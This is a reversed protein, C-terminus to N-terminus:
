RVPFVLPLSETQRIGPSYRLEAGPAIRYEPVRRHFEEIGVRLEMRALHSGLCRHPGGGFALHRNQVRDFDVEDPHPFEEPDRDAAGLLVTVSDGKQLSVGRLETDEKVTRVVMMVPTEARLLEEVVAATSGPDEVLRRRHEPHTALYAVSCDLTATVTDLGGLLLLHCIGLLERQDLPRGDIQAHVLRSLLGDDPRRRREAIAEEFYRTIAHGTEERIRAAAEFDGPEVDPRITNDRWQLFTPLDSQPLGMLRLFITSPLPTAFEEHFDCEGRDAFRDILGNVLRRADDEIEAIRRPSFEPDLLRRYKAHEPPDVQLPILPQDQGIDVASASSFVEPHKLAWLVDEYRSIVVAHEGFPSSTRAVPCTERLARYAAAPDNATAPDFLVAIPDKTTDTSM